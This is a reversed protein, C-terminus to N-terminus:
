MWRCFLLICILSSSSSALRVKRPWSGDGQGGEEEEENSALSSGTDDLRADLHRCICCAAGRAARADATLDVNLPVVEQVGRRYDANPGALAEQEGEALAEFVRLVSLAPSLLLM